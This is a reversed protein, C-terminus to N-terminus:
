SVVGVLENNSSTEPGGIYRGCETPMTERWLSRAGYLSLPNSEIIALCNQISKARSSSRTAESNPLAKHSYLVM